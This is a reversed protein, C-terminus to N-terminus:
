LACVENRLIEAKFARDAFDITLVLSHEQCEHTSHECPLGFVSTSCLLQKVIRPKSCIELFLVLLISGNQGKERNTSEQQM